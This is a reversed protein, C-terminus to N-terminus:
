PSYLNDYDLSVAQFLFVTYARRSILLFLCIFFLFSYVTSLFLSYIFLLNSRHFLQTTLLTYHYRTYHQLQLRRKM